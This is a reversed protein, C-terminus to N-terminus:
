CVPPNKWTEDEEEEEEEEWSGSGEGQTRRAQSPVQIALLKADLARQM